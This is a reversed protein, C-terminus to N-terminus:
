RYTCGDMKLVCYVNYLFANKTNKLLWKFPRLIKVILGFPFKYVVALKAYAKRFGFYKELYDNFNTLHRITRSGNSVIVEHAKLKENWETLMCDILSANSNYKEYSPVTKQQQLGIVNGRLNIILFGILRNTEKFFCAYFMHSGDGALEHIYNVFQEKEVSKPREVEAYGEFSKNYCEFLADIYELPEIHKSYCFKRAKTIEYRKKAPLSTLDYESDKITFWWQTEEKCDFETIYSAFLSVGGRMFKRQIESFKIKGAVPIEPSELVYSYNYYIFNNQM